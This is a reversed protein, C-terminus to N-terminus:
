YLLMPTRHHNSPAGALDSVDILSNSRHFRDEALVNFGQTETCASVNCLEEDTKLMIGRSFSTARSRQERSEQEVPSAQARSRVFGVLLTIAIIAVCGLLEAKSLSDGFVCLDTIIAYVIAMYGVMSALSTSVVQFGICMSIMALSDCACGGLLILAQNGTLEALLNREGFLAFGCLILSILVVGQASQHIMLESFHIRQLRRSLVGIGSFLWAHCLCLFVGLWFGNNSNAEDSAEIDTPTSNASSSRAIAIFIVCTFSALMAILEMRSVRERNILFGLIASWLPNTQFIIIIFTMPLLQLNVTFLM